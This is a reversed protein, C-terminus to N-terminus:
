SRGSGHQAGAAVDPLGEWVLATLQDALEDSSPGNRAGGEAMWCDAVAGVMGVLAVGWLQCVRAELAPVPPAAWASPRGSRLRGAEGGYVLEGADCGCRADDDSRPEDLSYSM